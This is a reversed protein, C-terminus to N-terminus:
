RRDAAFVRWVMANFTFHDAASFDGTVWMENDVVGPATDDDRVMAFLMQRSLETDFVSAGPKRPSPVRRMVEFANNYWPGFGRWSYETPMGEPTRASKAFGGPAGQTEYVTVDYGADVLEHAAALGAIGSGFVAVSKTTKRAAERGAADPALLPAASSFPHKSPM